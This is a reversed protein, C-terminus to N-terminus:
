NVWKDGDIIMYYQENEEDWEPHDCDDCVRIVNYEDDTEHNREYQCSDNGDVYQGCIECQVKKHWVCEYKQALQLAKKYEPTRNIGRNSGPMIYILEEISKQNMAYQALLDADNINEIHNYLCTRKGDDNIKWVAFDM